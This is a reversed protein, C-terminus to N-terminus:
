YRGQLTLGDCCLATKPEHHDRQKVKASVLSAKAREECLRIQDEVSAERQMDSSYRAYIAVKKKSM